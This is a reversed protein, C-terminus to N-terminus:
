RSILVGWMSWRVRVTGGCWIGPAICGSGAGGFPCAVFRESTLASRGWYGRALGAGAVHLEGVVGAPVLGLRDDLVYACTDDFPVGIPPVEPVEGASRKPWHTVFTTTETPGYVHGLAMGPCAELVRRMAAPSAAEGGTLVERLGSFAGADEEAILNFLATTIFIASLGEEVVLSRLM